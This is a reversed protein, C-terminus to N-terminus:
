FFAQFRMVTGGRREREKSAFTRHHITNDSCVSSESTLTNRFSMSILHLLYPLITLFHYAIAFICVTLIPLTYCHFSTCHISLRSNSNLLNFCRRFSFFFCLLVVYNVFCHWLFGAFRPGMERSLDHITRRQRWISIFRLRLRGQTARPVRICPGGV